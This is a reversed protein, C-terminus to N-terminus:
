GAITGEATEAEMTQTAGSEVAPLRETLKALGFDLVKIHGAHGAATGTVMVNAPKIDRHLIGAQHAAALADAMEIAYKLTARLELGNPGIREALTQGEVLEMAIFDTGEVCDIDYITIIH